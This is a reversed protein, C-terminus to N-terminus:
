ISLSLVLNWHKGNYWSIHAQAIPHRSGGQKTKFFYRGPRSAHQTWNICGEQDPFSVVQKRHIIAQVM